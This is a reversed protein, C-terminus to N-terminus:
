ITSCPILGLQNKRADFEKGKKALMVTNCGIAKSIEHPYTANSTNMITVVDFVNQQIDTPASKLYDIHFYITSANTAKMKYPTTPNDIYITVGGEAGFVNRFRNQQPINVAVTNFAGNIADELQKVIGLEELTKSGAEIRADQIPVDTTRGNTFLFDFSTSFDREEPEAIVYGCAQMKEDSYDGPEVYIKDPDCDPEPKGNDDGGCKVAGFALTTIAVGKVINEAINNKM